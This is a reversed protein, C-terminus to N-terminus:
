LNKSWKNNYVKGYGPFYSHKGRGFLEAFRKSKYLVFEISGSKSPEMRENKFLIGSIDNESDWNFNNNLTPPLEERINIVTQKQKDRQDFSYGLWVIFLLLIIVLLAMM